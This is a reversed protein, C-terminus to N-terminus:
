AVAPPDPNLNITSQRMFELAARARRESPTGGGVGLENCIRDIESEVDSEPIDARSSIEADQSGGAVKKLVILQRDTLKSVHSAARPRLQAIIVPDLTVLGWTSGEIARALADTNHLNQKLLYSWGGGRGDAVSELYQKDKHSSLIVIGVEPRTGKIAQAAEIGSMGPGLDIDMVIADPRHEGALRVAQKGDAATAVVQVTPYSGLAARLLDRMLAQDEVIMVRIARGRPASAPRSAQTATM